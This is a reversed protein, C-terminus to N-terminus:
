AAHSSTLVRVAYHRVTTQPVLFRQALGRMDIVDGDAYCRRLGALSRVWSDNGTIMQESLAEESVFEVEFARRFVEEFIRVVELPSLAEPGGLEFTTNRASPDDVCQLTFRAVDYFSLWSIKNMGEGYIAARRNAFDFGGIASLWVEVYFTPRLITYSVGSAQLYREVDRKANRFPFERDIHGSISTYVFSEVGSAKAADVLDQHGRGDVREVTDDPQRSVLMSATSIVTRVGQCAAKLSKPDKLDGEVLDVGIKRLREVTRTDSTRRVLARTARGESRLLRCVEGGLGVPGTAGVILYM